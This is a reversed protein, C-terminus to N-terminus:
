PHQASPHPGMAPQPGAWTPTAPPNAPIPDFTSSATRLCTKGLAFSAVRLLATPLNRERVVAGGVGGAGGTGGLGPLHGHLVCIDLGSQSNVFIHELGLMIDHIHADSVLSGLPDHRVLGREHNKDPTLDRGGGQGCGVQDRGHQPRHGGIHHLEAVYARQGGVHSGLWGDVSFLM